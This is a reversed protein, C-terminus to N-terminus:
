CDASCYSKHHSAVRSRLFYFHQVTRPNRRASAGASDVGGAHRGERNLRGKSTAVANVRTTATGPSLDDCSKIPM